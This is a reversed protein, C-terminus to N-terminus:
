LLGDNCQPIEDGVDNLELGGDIGRGPSWTRVGLHEMRLVCLEKCAM